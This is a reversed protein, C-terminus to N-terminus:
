RKLFGGRGGEYVREGGRAHLAQHPALAPLVLPLVFLPLLPLAALLHVAADRSPAGASIRAEAGRECEPPRLGEQQEHGQHTEPGQNQVAQPERSGGRGLAAKIRREAWIRQHTARRKIDAHTRHAWGRRSASSHSTIRANCARAVCAPCALRLCAPASLPVFCPCPLYRPPTTWKSVAHPTTPHQLCDRCPTWRNHM